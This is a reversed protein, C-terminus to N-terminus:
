LPLISLLNTKHTNLYRFLENLINSSSGPKPPLRPATDPAAGTNRLQRESTAM